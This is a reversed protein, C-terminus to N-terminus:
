GCVNATSPEAHVVTESSGSWRAFVVRESGAQALRRELERLARGRDAKGTATRPMVDCVLLASPVAARPLERSLAALLAHGEDRGFAASAVLAAGIRKRGQSTTIVGTVANVVAAQSALLRQIEMLHIRQGEIKVEDDCRGRYFLQGSADCHVIDGTRYFRRGQIVILKEREEDPRNLYGRMLQAGGVALEGDPGDCVEGESDLLVAFSGEHLQGIPVECDTLPGPEPKLYCTCGVTLETPGYSNIFRLAPLRSLWENVVRPNCVEAGTQLMRLCSLDHTDLRRGDGTIVALVSGVAYFHTIRDRELTELLLSPMPLEPTLVVSAGFYLPLLVDLVSVDFHFPGTNMCRDGPRIGARQNHALFFAEISRHEILVGKPRGTSGSTYMVYAVDCADVLPCTVHMEDGEGCHERACSSLDVALAGHCASGIIYRAGSDALMYDLRNRPLSSDLAVYTAGARAIALLGIVTEVSKRGLVAVRDGRSVGQSVLHRASREVARELDLFSVAHSQDRLALAHPWRAAGRRSLEGLTFHPSYEPTHSDSQSRINQHM